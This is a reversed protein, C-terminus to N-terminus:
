LKVVKYTVIFNYAFTTLLSQLLFQDNCTWVFRFILWEFNTDKVERLTKLSIEQFSKLWHDCVELLCATLSTVRLLLQECYCSSDSYSFIQFNLRRCIRIRKHMSWPVFVYTPFQFHLSTINNRPIQGRSFVIPHNRHLSFAIGQM